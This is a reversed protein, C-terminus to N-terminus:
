SNTHRADASVMDALLVRVDDLDQLCTVKGVLGDVQAPSLPLAAYGMCDLFRALHVEEALANGPFGPAIELSSEFRRGDLTDVQLDVASHHRGAMSEDAIVDIRAALARVTPDCVSATTFHGLQPYGHVIVNAVCYRVSFQANVRPNDGIEFPHGVLKYAYPPLSIQIQRVDASVCNLETKAQLALETVGQTLGCSPYKKFVTNMVAYREGLAAVFSEARLQGKAFLHAYGYVGSLFHRPGTMGNRALQACVVGSEAVWGQILRVALSGDINSQFSGAARNFALALAHLTQQPSLRLLRAVAATAGFVAAVGTPDAGDYAAETLNLRAATEAGVVLAALFDRGSCGGVLEAAAFAAPILSSGIHLGPAMADCYDLARSMVGNVLAAGSATVRDGYVFLTAPGTGHETQVFARVTGCGEETAGAVATGLVTLLMRRVVTLVEAPIEDYGLGHIFHALALEPEM